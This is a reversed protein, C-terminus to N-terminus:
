VAAAEPRSVSAESATNAALGHSHEYCVQHIHAELEEGYAIVRSAFYRAFVIAPIAVILGGATKYLAFSLGVALKAKDAGGTEALTSFTIIMGIVTGILGFMPAIVGITTILWLHARLPKLAILTADTLVGNLSVGGLMYERLAKAWARGVLTDSQAARAQAEKVKLEGMLRTVDAIMPEDLVRSRKMARFRNVIAAVLAISCAWLLWMAPGFVQGVWSHQAERAAAAGAIDVAPAAADGTEQAHLSFALSLIALALGATLLLHRNM